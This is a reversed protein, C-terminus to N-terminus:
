KQRLQKKSLPRVVKEPLKKGEKKPKSKKTGGSTPAPIQERIAKKREELGLKRDEDEDAIAEEEELKLQELNVELESNIQEILDRESKGQILVQAVDKALSKYLTDSPIAEKVSSLTNLEQAVDIIGFDDPYSINIVMEEKDKQLWKAMLRFIKTEATELIDAQDSLAQNTENFLYAHAIGSLAQELVATGGSLKAMRFIENSLTAIIELFFQGPTLSPSIFFPPQDGTYSMVNNGGITFEPTNTNTRKIALLTLAKQYMEEDLLSCVNILAVSVLAIDHIFSLGIFKSNSYERSRIIVLPVEGLDHFEGNIKTVKIKTVPRSTKDDKKQSTLKVEHRMWENRTWTVYREVKVNKNDLVKESLPDSVPPNPEKYRFWLLKGHPDFEWNVIMHPPIRLCFPFLREDLQMDFTKNDADKLGSSTLMNDVLIYQNGMVMNWIAVQKMFDDITTGCGDVDEMIAQMIQVFEENNSDLVQGTEKEEVVRKIPQKFLFGAYINIIQEIYNLYYARKKREKISDEGERLHRHLFQHVNLGEFLKIYMDWLPLMEILNNPKKRLIEALKKEKPDGIIAASTTDSGTVVSGDYLGPISGSRELIEKIFDPDQLFRTINTTDTPM